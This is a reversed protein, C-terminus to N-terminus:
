EEVFQVLTYSFAGLAGSRYRLEVSANMGDALLDDFFGGFYPHRGLVFGILACSFLNRLEQIVEL